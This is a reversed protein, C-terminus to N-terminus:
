DSTIVYTRKPPHAGSTDGTQAILGSLESAYRFVRSADACHSAGRSSNASPGSRSGDVIRDSETAPVLMTFLMWHRLQGEIESLTGRPVCCARINAGDFLGKRWMLKWAATDRM